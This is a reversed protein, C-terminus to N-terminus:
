RWSSTLRPRATLAPRPRRVTLWERIRRRRVSPKHSARLERLLRQKAAERHMDTVRQAVLADRLITHM